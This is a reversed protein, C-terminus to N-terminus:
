NILLQKTKEDFNYFKPLEEITVRGQKLAQKVAEFKKHATTLTEIRKPRQPAETAQPANNQHRYMQNFVDDLEKRAKKICDAASEGDTSWEGGLRITEYNGLNRVIQVNITVAKM